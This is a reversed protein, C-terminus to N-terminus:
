PTSKPENRHLWGLAQVMPITPVDMAIATQSPFCACVCFALTNSPNQSCTPFILKLYVHSTEGSEQLWWVHSCISM